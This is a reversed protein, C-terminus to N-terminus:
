DLCDSVSFHSFIGCVDLYELRYLAKIDEIHYAHDQAIIGIRSM